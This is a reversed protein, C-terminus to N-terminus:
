FHDFFELTRRENRRERELDDSWRVDNAVVADGVDGVGGVDSGGAQLSHKVNEFRYKSEILMSSRERSITFQVSCVFMKTLNSVQKEFYQKEQALIIDCQQGDFGFKSSEANIVSM